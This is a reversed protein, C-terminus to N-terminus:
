EMIEVHHAQANHINIRLMLHYTQLGLTFEDARLTTSYVFIVFSAESQAVTGVQNEVSM